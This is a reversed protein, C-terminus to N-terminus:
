IDQREWSSPNCACTVIDRLRKTKNQKMRQTQKSPALCAELEQDHGLRLSIFTPIISGDHDTENSSRSRLNYRLVSGPHMNDAPLESLFLLLIVAESLTLLQSFSSSERRVCARPHNQEAARLPKGRSGKISQSSRSSLSTLQETQM